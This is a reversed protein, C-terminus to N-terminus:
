LLTHGPCPEEVTSAPKWAGTGVVLHRPTVGSILAPGYYQESKATLLSVVSQAGRHVMLQALHRVPVKKVSMASSEMRFLIFIFSLSPFHNTCPWIALFYHLRCEAVLRDPQRTKQKRHQLLSLPM